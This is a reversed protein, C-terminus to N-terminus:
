FLEFHIYLKFPKPNMDQVCTVCTNIILFIETKCKLSIFISYTIQPNSNLKPNLKVNQFNVVKIYKSYKIIRLYSFGTLFMTFTIM